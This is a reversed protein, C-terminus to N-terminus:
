ETSNEEISNEISFEPTEIYVAEFTPDAEWKFYRKLHSTLGKLGTFSLETLQTLLVNAGITIRWGHFPDRITAQDAQISDIIIQHGGLEEANIDVSISGYQSIFREIDKINAPVRATRAKLGARQLSTLLGETNSINANRIIHARSRKGHDEILMAACAEVCGRVGQQQIMTKGDSYIGIPISSDAGHLRISVCKEIDILINDSPFIVTHPYYASLSVAFGDRTIPDFYTERGIFCRDVSNTPPFKRQSFFWKLREDRALTSLTSPLAENNKLFHCTGLLGEKSVVAQPVWAPRDKALNTQIEVGKIKRSANKRMETKSIINKALDDVKQTTGFLATSIWQM